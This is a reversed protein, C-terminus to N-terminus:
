QAAFTSLKESIRLLYRRKLYFIKLKEWEVEDLRVLNPHKVIQNVPEQIDKEYYRIESKIKFFIEDSYDMKLDMLGENIDMMESLFANPLAHKNESENLLGRESLLYHLRLDYDQLVRYAENLLTAAALAAEQEAESADAFRDPHTLRSKKLFLKRLEDTNINMTPMYGFLDFYQM